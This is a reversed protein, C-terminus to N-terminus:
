ALRQAPKALLLHIDSIYREAFGAECYALYFEWMRCFEPPFGLGRVQGLSATFRRRWEALTRAYHLGIDDLGAIRFDTARGVSATIAGLSPINSGPFIYKKIFDVSRRHVPYAQEGITIAQLLMLGDEKLLRSCQGFYADYYGHGVAEIMEVSVLKDYSGRLDRYDELVIEIQGQLGAEQVRQRALDYQQRSLTTSRVRCGYQGAAHIALGGWGTGIELMHEGPKLQLRRCIMDLKHVSAEELSADPRPYVASSYMMTEDLFLAFFENSLDYHSAINRRSGRRSNRRWAHGAAYFPRALGGWGWDRGQRGSRVSIRCLAALDDCTWSGDMYAEGAGLNGGLFVDRYFRPHCVEVTAELEGGSGFTQKRGNEVLHIVGGVVSQLQRVVLRRALKVGELSRSKEAAVSFTESM